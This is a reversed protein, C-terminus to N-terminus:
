IIFKICNIYYLNLASLINSKCSMDETQHYLEILIKVGDKIRSILLILDEM